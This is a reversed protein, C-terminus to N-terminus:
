VCVQEVLRWFMCIGCLVSCVGYWVWVICVYWVWVCVHTGCVCMSCVTVCWMCMYMYVVCVCVMIYVMHMCVCDCECVCLTVFFMEVPKELGSVLIWLSLTVKVFIGCGALKLAKGVPMFKVKLDWRHGYSIYTCNELETVPYRGIREWKCKGGHRNLPQRRLNLCDVRAIQSARRFGAWWYVAMQSPAWLVARFGLHSKGLGYELWTEM